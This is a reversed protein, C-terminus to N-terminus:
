VSSVPKVDCPPSLAACRCDHAAYLWPGGSQGQALEESPTSSRCSSSANGDFAATSASAADGQWATSSGTTLSTSPLTVYAGSAADTYYLEVEYAWLTHTAPAAAAPGLKWTCVAAPAPLQPQAAPLTWIFFPWPSARVGATAFAYTAVTAGASSLHAMSYSTIQTTSGSIFAHLRLVRV